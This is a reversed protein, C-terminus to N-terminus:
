RDPRAAAGPRPPHPDAQEPTTVIIRRIGYYISQAANDSAQGTMDYAVISRPTAVPDWIPLRLEDRGAAAAIRERREALAARHGPLLHLDSLIRASGGWTACGALTAAILAGTGRNALIGRRRRADLGATAPAAACIWIGALATALAPLVDGTLLLVGASAAVIALGLALCGLARGRTMSSGALAIALRLRAAAPGALWAGSACAAAAATLWACVNILNLARGPPSAGQGWTIPMVLLAYIAPICLVLLLPLWGPVPRHSSANRRAIFALLLLPALLGPHRVLVVVFSLGAELSQWAAEGLDVRVMGMQASLATRVQHGPAAVALGGAILAACLAGTWVWAAPMRLLHARLGLAAVMCGTALVNMESGGCSLAILLWATAIAAPAPPHRPPMLLACGCAAMGLPWCYSAAGAVWAMGDAVNICCAMIGLTVLATFGLREAMPWDAPILRLVCWACAAMTSSWICVAWFAYWGSDLPMLSPWGSIFATATFRGTWNLFHHKQFAWWDQRGAIAYSYDDFSPSTCSLAAMTALVVLGAAAALVWPSWSSRWRWVLLAAAAAAVADMGPEALLDM